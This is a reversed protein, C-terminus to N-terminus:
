INRRHYNKKGDKIAQNYVPCVYFENNVRLNKDIMRQAYQVYDSGHKWYYLGVTAKNSIVEKEAVKTVFGNKDIKAYSWRPHLANFTLIAGDVKTKKFKYIVKSSDWEFYQDSNCIILPQESNIYKKTLLVTCAAGETLSETEVIKCGPKLINLLSSINYKDQHEKQVIFIYNANINICDIVWQIM